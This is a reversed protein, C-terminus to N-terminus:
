LEHDGEMQHEIMKLLTTLHPSGGHHAMVTLKKISVESVTIEAWGKYDPKFSMLFRKWQGKTVGALRCFERHKPRESPVLKYNTGGFARNFADDVVKRSVRPM